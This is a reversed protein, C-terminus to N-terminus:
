QIRDDAYTMYERVNVCTVTVREQECVCAIGCMLRV